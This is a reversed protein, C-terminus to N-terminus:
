RKVGALSLFSDVGRWVVGSGGADGGDASLM